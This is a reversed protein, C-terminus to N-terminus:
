RPELLVLLAAGNLFQPLAASVSMRPPLFSVPVGLVTQLALGALVLAALVVVPAVLGQM